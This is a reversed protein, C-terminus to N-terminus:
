IGRIVPYRPWDVGKNTCYLQHNQPSATKSRNNKIIYLLQRFLIIKLAKYKTKIKFHGLKDTVYM